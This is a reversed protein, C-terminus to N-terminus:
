SVSCGLEILLKKIRREKRPNITKPEIGIDFDVITDPNIGRQREEDTIVGPMSDIATLNVGQSDFVELMKMLRGSGDDFLRFSISHMRINGLRAGSIGGKRFLDDVSGDRNHFNINDRIIDRLNNKDESLVGRKIEALAVEMIEILELKDPQDFILESPINTGQGLTRGWSLAQLESNLTAFKNFRGLTFNGIRSSSALWQNTVTTIFQAREVNKHEAIDIVQISSNKSVFLDIALKKARESNPGVECIWVKVGRWPQQPVAGFHTSVVSIGEADLERWIPILRSKKSSGDMVTHHSKLHERVEHIRSIVQDQGIAFFVDTSEDLRDALADNVECIKVDKVGINRFGDATTTGLHGAGGVVTVVRESNPINRENEKIM